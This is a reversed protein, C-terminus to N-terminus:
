RQRVSPAELSGLERARDSSEGTHTSGMVGGWSCGCASGNRTVVFLESSPVPPRRPFGAISGLDTFRQWTTKYPPVREFGWEKWLLLDDCISNWWPQINPRRSISFVLYALVWSGAMRAPRSEGTKAVKKELEALIGGPLTKV